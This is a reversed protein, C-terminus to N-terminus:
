LCVGCGKCDPLVDYITHYSIDYASTTNLLENNCDWGVLKSMEKKLSKKGGFGYWVRNACSNKNKDCDENFSKAKIYLEELKPEIKIIDEWTLTM